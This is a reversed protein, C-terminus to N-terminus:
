GHPHYYAPGPAGSAVPFISRQVPSSLFSTTARNDVSSSLMATYEGPGPGPSPSVLTSGARRARSPKQFASSFQSSFDTSLQPLNVSYHGPGPNVYSRNNCKITSSPGSISDSNAMRTLGLQYKSQNSSSGTPPLLKVMIPEAAASGIIAPDYAGPGPASHQQLRPLRSDSMSLLATRIRPLNPYLPDYQGPGPKPEPKLDSRGCCSLTATSGSNVAQDASVSVRYTGPGPVVAPYPWRQFRTSKSAFSGTGRKSWSDSTLRDHGFPRRKVADIYAGPGPGDAVRPPEFRSSERGFGIPERLGRCLVTQLRAPISSRPGKGTDSDYPDHVSGLCLRGGHLRGAVRFNVEEM